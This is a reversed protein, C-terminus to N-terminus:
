GPGPQSIVRDVLARFGPHRLLALTDGRQLMATVEPDALLQELAPDNRVARLRPAVQRMVEAVAERFAQPDTEAEAPVLGLAALRAREAPDRQLRLYSSRALAADVNGSEVYTWFMEDERLAAFRDSEVVASLEGVAQAPRAALRATLRAAPDEAGLGAEVASEVVESTLAAARSGELDPLYPAMGTARAADLWLALYSLLLVIGLGRLGGFVGGLFRDRAGEPEPANRRLLAGAFGLAAFSALFVGTSAAALGLAPGLRPSLGPALVPGLTLAAAYAGVLSALALGSALAGRWAGAVVFLALLLAALADLWM